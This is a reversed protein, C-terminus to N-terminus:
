QVSWLYYLIINESFFHLSKNTFRVTWTGLLIVSDTPGFGEDFVPQRQLVYHIFEGNSTSRSSEIERSWIEGTTIRCEDVYIWDMCEKIIDLASIIWSYVLLGLIRPASLYCSGITTNKLVRFFKLWWWAFDLPGPSMAGPNQSRQKLM